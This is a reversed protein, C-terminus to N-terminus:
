HSLTRLNAVVMEAVKATQKCALDHNMGPIDKSDNGYSVNLTQEPAIDVLYICHYAAEFVSSRTQVAPFGGVQLVTAGEGRAAQEVKRPREFMVFWSYTQNTRGVQFDCRPPEGVPSRNISEIKLQARQAATLL